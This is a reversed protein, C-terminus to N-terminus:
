AHHVSYIGRYDPPPMMRAVDPKYTGVEALKAPDTTDIIRLGGWEGPADLLTGTVKRGPTCSGDPNFGPCLANRIALGVNARAQFGPIVTEGAPLGNQDVDERPTGTPPFGAISEPIDAATRLVVALAGADQARRTRSVFTCGAGAFLGPQADVRGDAFLIKGAPNNLYPDAPAVTGNALVRRPGAPCARGTYVLEGSVQGGPQRHIQAQYKQDFTSYLDMCGVSSGALDAPSDIRLTSSPWWWDEDALVAFRRNGIEAEAAYAAQGEINWDDPYSWSGVVKPENLNGAVDLMFLGGDLYPVFLRTGDNSFQASRSGSRPYCGHNSTRPPADGLPPWTGLQTPKAPDTVDVLRVDGAPTNASASDMKSSVSLIRGDAIRKLQVSFQDAACRQDSGAPPPACPLTDADSLEFDAFYRGLLRPRAQDSVDYYAVGRDKYSSVQVIGFDKFVKQDYQCTAFAVAVLDGTFSPTSVALADVDSAAQAEPVAITATVRPRTPDSIDVVKVPVTVCPPAINIAARLTNANQMTNMPMYGAAVVATNGVVAVEGNLGQGGLDSHGVVSLGQAEGAPVVATTGPIVQAQGSGASVLLAGTTALVLALGRWRRTAVPSPRGHHNDFM